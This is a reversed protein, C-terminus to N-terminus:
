FRGMGQEGSYM